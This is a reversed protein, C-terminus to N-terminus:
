QLAILIPILGQGANLPRLAKGIIAGFAKRPDVAKMAHGLTPATTLLDGAEIPAYSADAKCYVKGVLAIPKRDIQSHRRGLVIGAKFDSAGSIVGAVRKDYGQHSQRLRGEEGVVMVTGPDLGEADAIDFDEACDQGVLSVDGTVEVNGFFRGAVAGVGTVGAAQTLGPEVTGYVGSGNEVTTHGWVGVGEGPQKGPTRGKAGNFGFIASKSSSETRGTVGVGSNTKGDVGTGLFSEGTVGTAVGGVSGGYVGTGSAKNTIGLVGTDDSQGFAGVPLGVFPNRGALFGIAEYSATYPGSGTRAPLMGGVAANIPMGFDAIDDLVNTIDTRDGTLGFVGVAAVDQTEGGQGVIVSFPVAVGLAGFSYRPVDAGSDGVSIGM